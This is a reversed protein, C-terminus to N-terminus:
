FNAERGQFSGETFERHHSDEYVCEITHNGQVELETDVKVSLQSIYHNNEVRLSRVVITKNSCEKTVNNFHSHLFSIEDNSNSCDFTSGKWVTLLGGEVSCLFSLTYEPCDCRSM